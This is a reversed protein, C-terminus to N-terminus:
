DAIGLILVDRVVTDSYSISKECDHCNTIYECVHAQGKVRAAFGRIAEGNDQRMQHLLVRSVMVNEERVALLRIASLLQEEPRDTLNGNTTRTLDKRLPEECCELLQMVIDMGTLRTALKYEEWRSLFYSWDETTGAPIIIPRRVKEMPQKSAGGFNANSHSTTHANLLAAVIVPELNDPTSYSCGDIPCQIAKMIIKTNLQTVRPSLSFPAHTIIRAGTNYVILVFGDVVYYLALVLITGYAQM